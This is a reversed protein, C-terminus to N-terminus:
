IINPSSDFAPDHEVHPHPVFPTVPMGPVVSVAVSPFLSSLICAAMKFNYIGTKVTLSGVAHDHVFGKPHSCRKPLLNKLLRESTTKITWPRLPRKGDIVLDFACGDVDVSMMGLSEIMQILTPEKWGQSGRAWEFNNSGGRSLAVVDALEKFREVQTLSKQREEKLRLHYEPDKHKAMEQWLSWKTCPLSGWLHIPGEDNQIADQVWVVLQNFLVPDDINLFTKTIGLYPIGFHKAVRSCASNDECCFEIFWGIGKKGTIASSEVVYEALSALGGVVERDEEDSTPSYDCEDDTAPPCEPVDEEDDEFVDGPLSIQDKSDTQEVADDGQVLPECEDLLRNFRERCEYSHAYTGLLCGDCMDTEGYQRIRRSTIVRNRVRTTPREVAPGQIEPADPMPSQLMPVKTLPFVWKGSPFTFDKTTIERIRGDRWSEFDLLVHTDKFRMAPLIEPGLYLAPVENPEFSGRDTRRYWVLAGFPVLHGESVYGLAFHLKNQFQIEEPEDKPLEDEGKDVEEELGPLPHDEVDRGPVLEGGPDQVDDGGSVEEQVKRRLSGHEISPMSSLNYQAAFCAQAKTWFEIPLGSQLLLSRTGQRITKIASEAYSNHFKDSPPSPDPHLGLSEIAALISPARDSAVIPKSERCFHRLGQEVSAQSKDASAYACVVGSFIDVCVLSYKEGKLGEERAELHDCAIRQLFARPAEVVQADQKKESQNPFRRHAHTRLKAQRCVDCHPLAPQHTLLHDVPIKPSVASRSVKPLEVHPREPFDDRDEGDGARDRSSGPDAREPEGGKDEAIVEPLPEDSEKAVEGEEVDAVGSGGSDASPAPLGEAPMGYTFTVSEKFIPVCHEVRDAVICCEANFSVEFPQGSPILSPQHNPGWVFSFGAEVLRGLSKVFPCSKLMYVLGDGYEDSTVGVTKSSDKHGGGTDFIMPSASITAYEAIISKPVGQKALAGESALHEGAGSDLAWELEFRDAAPPVACSAAVGLVAAGVLAVAAKPPKVAAAAKAKAKPEPGEHRYPCEDGRRCLGKPWFICVGKGAPADGSGSAPDSNSKNNDKNRDNGKDKDGAKTSGKSKGDGKNGKRSSDKGKGKGKGKGDKGKKGKGKGKADEQAVAGPKKTSPGKRLNEQISSLNREHQSEAIAKQVRNWLYDFTREVAGVGSEKIRDIVLHLCKVKRLREFLWKSLIDESPKESIPLQGLIYQIKDRFHILSSINDNEPSPLQFLEISSIIGGLAADLDFERVVMNLIHRGRLGRGSNMSEELYAQIRPGFYGRLCDPKSLWSCLMRDLRPFGQSDTSLTLIEAPTRARFAFMLWDSLHNEPSKDLAIFIPIVSNKWARLAGASEPFM